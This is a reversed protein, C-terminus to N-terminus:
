PSVAGGAPAQYILKRVMEGRLVPRPVGPPYWRQGTPEASTAAAAGILAGIGACIFATAPGGGAGVLAGIAFGFGLGRLLRRDSADQWFWVEQVSARPFVLRAGSGANWDVDPNKERECALATDDVRVVRCEEVGAQGESQVEVAVGVGLRKVAKWQEHRGSAQAMGGGALMVALMWGVFKVM